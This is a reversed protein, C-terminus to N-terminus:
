GGRRRPGARCGRPSRRGRCGGWRGRGAAARRPPSSPAAAERIASMRPLAGPRSRRWSGGTSPHRATSGSSAARRPHRDSRLAGRGVQRLRDISIDTVGVDRLVDVVGARLPIGRRVAEAINALTRHHSNRATISDHERADPSYYSTALRVGEHEFLRWLTGTVRVLNTYVEVRTRRDLGHRVLAGLNPQLTPEGGIFQVLSVGLDCAQDIVRMWDSTVMSGHTGRPGSDAYCHCCRLHVVPPSTGAREDDVGGTRLRTPIM